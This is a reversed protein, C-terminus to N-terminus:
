LGYGCVTRRGNGDIDLAYGVAYHSLIASGSDGCIVCVMDWLTIPYYRQVLIVASLAFPLAFITHSFKIMRAYISIREFM